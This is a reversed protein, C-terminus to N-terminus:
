YHCGNLISVVLAILERDVTPLGPTGRMSARYLALHGALGAPDLSHVRLIEDVVGTAPDACRALTPELEPDPPDPRTRIWAM